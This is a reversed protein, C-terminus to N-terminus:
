LVLEGGAETWPMMWAQEEMTNAGVRGRSRLSNRQRPLSSTMVSQLLRPILELSSAFSRALILLYGCANKFPSSM